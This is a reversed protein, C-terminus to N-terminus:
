KQLVHHKAKNMKRFNFNSKRDNRQRFIKAYTTLSINVKLDNPGGLFKYGPMLLTASMLM